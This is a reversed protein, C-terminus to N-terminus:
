DILCLQPVPVLHLTGGLTEKFIVTNKLKEKLFKYCLGPDPDLNPWFDPDLDLNLPKLDM